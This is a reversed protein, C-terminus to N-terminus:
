SRRLRQFYMVCMFYRGTKLKAQSFKDDKGVCVAAMEGWMWALATLAFLNLYNSAVAGAEEPDQMGRMSLGMTAENSSRPHMVQYARYVRGARQKRQQGPHVQSTRHLSKTIRGMGDPLKRGVLDLAQIHNAGEYIMAIWADRLYQEISWDTTYGSGGCVQM